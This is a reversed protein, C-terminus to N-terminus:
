GTPKQPKRPAVRAPNLTPRAHPPSARPTTTPPPPASRRATAAVRKSLTNRHIGLTAATRSLHEQPTRAGRYTSSEFEELAEDLMLQGDLMEDILSRAPRAYANPTRETPEFLSLRRATREPPREPSFTNTARSSARACNESTCFALLRACRRSRPAQARRRSRKSSSPSPRSRSTSSQASPWAACSASARASYRDFWELGVRRLGAAGVRRPHVRGGTRHGVDSPFGRRVRSSQSSRASAACSRRGARVHTSAVIFGVVLRHGVLARVFGRLAGSPCPRGVIALLVPRFFLM